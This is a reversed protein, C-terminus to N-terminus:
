FEYGLQAGLTWNTLNDNAPMNTITSKFTPRYAFRVDAVFGRYTTDFGVGFPTTIVDSSHTVNATPTTPTITYRDWGVGGFLYPEFLTRGMMLPANLRLTTEAGNRM